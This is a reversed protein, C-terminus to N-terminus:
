EISKNNKKYIAGSFDRSTACNMIKLYSSLNLLRNVYYHKMVHYQIYFIVPYSFLMCLLLKQCSNSCNQNILVFLQDYLANESVHTIKNILKVGKAYWFM